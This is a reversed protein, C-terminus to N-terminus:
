KQEKLVTSNKFIYECGSIVTVAAMLWMLLDLVTVGKFLVYAQGINWPLLGVSVVIIQLVTKVKGWMSAAIVVGNDVAILRLGTVVFERVIIIFLVWVSTKGAGVLACLAAAVLLKDALPDMFKGFDSVMDYKRAVYGDVSDTAAALVFVLLAAFQAYFNEFLVLVIFVPILLIRSITIKNAPNLKIERWIM